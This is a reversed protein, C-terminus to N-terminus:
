RVTSPRSSTAPRPDPVARLLFYRTLAIPVCTMWIWRFSGALDLLPGFVVGSLSSGTQGIALMSGVALGGSGAGFRETVFVMLPATNMASAAGALISALLYLRDGM